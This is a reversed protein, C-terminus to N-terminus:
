HIAASYIFDQHWSLDGCQTAPDLEERWGIVAQSL